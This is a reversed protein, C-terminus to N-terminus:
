ETPLSFYAKRKIEERVVVNADCLQKVIASVRQNSIGELSPVTKMLDGITYAKGIEMTAVIDNKLNANEKQNATPKKETSNKKEISVKLAELKERAEADTITAIAVELAKVYTM